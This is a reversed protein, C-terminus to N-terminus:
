NKIILAGEHAEHTFHAAKEIGLAKIDTNILKINETKSGQLELLHKCEGSPTLDILDVDICNKLVMLSAAELTIHPNIDELSSDIVDDMVVASRNDHNRLTMSVNRLKLGKVHRLYMGYSPLTGFFLQEPYRAEDEAIERNKVDLNGFGTYSFDINEMVVNEIYHGPLGTFMIGETPPDISGTLRGEINRFTINRIKGVPRGEPKVDEEYVQKISETYDRGRNGLRIFIPGGCNYMKINSIEVDEIIAGDVALLKITGHRSDFFQCNSIKINRFGTKSATGFKICAWYSSVTCDSVYINECVKDVSSKLCIADDEVQLNCETIWVNSCGDFNMGDNNRNEKNYVRTKHIVISDCERFYVCWSGSNKIIAEEIRINRCEEIRFLKPREPSHKFFYGRGNIETRPHGIITINKQNKAYFLCKSFHPEETAVPVDAYNELSSSGFLEAGSELKITVNSKLFLTGTVYSGKPILVTGGENEFCADIASQIAKTSLEKHSNKAGYDVINFIAEKAQLAPNALLIRLTLIFILSRKM